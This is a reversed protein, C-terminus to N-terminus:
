EASAARQAHVHRDLYAAFGEGSAAMRAYEALHAAHRKARKGHRADGILGAIVDALLEEDRFSGDRELM